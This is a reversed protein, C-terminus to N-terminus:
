AAHLLHDLAANVRENIPAIADEILRVSDGSLRVSEEAVRDFGLRTLGAQAEILDQVTRAGLLAKSAAVNEEIVVQTLGLLSRSLDHLGKTLITSAKVFAEVTDRNFAVADEYGQYAAGHAKVAAAVQDRGLDLAKDYGKTAVDTSVKVVSEITEKGVVVAEGLSKVAEAQVASIAEAVPAVAPVAQSAAAPSKAVKPASAAPSSVPDEDNASKAKVTTM